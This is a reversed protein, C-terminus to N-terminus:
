KDSSSNKWNLTFCRMRLRLVSYLYRPLGLIQKPLFDRLFFKMNRANRKLIIAQDNGSAEHSLAPFGKIPSPTVYKYTSFYPSYECFESDLAKDSRLFEPNLGYDNKLCYRSYYTKSIIKPQPDNLMNEIIMLNQASIIWQLAFFSLPYALLALAYGVQSCFLGASFLGRWRTATLIAAQTLVLIPFLYFQPVYRAYGSYYAPQILVTVLIVILGWKLSGKWALPLLLLSVVFYFRFATGFGGVGGSVKFDPSFYPNHMKQKYYVITLSQSVYAYGFRGFYGMSRADENMNGFDNTIKDERAVRKDFSHAPYFPGGHRVWSTVYPSFGIFGILCFCCCTMVFWNCIRQAHDIAVVDGSLEGPPQPYVNLRKLTSTAFRYFMFGYGRAEARELYEVFWRWFIPLTFVALLIITTTIGTFKIGAMMALAIGLALLDLNRSEKLYLTASSLAILFFSFCASDFSGGFMGNAVVPSFSILGTLFGAPWKKFGFLSSVLRFVYFLSVVFALVNLSDAVEVFGVIKYLIAGFIWAGRPLYSIHWLNIAGEEGVRLALTEPTSDFVPNWGKALLLSAPRHYAEADANTYMVSLGSLAVVGVVSLLFLVLKKVKKRPPIKGPICLMCVILLSLIGQWRGITVGFLFGISAMLVSLGSFVLLLLPISLDNNKSDAM